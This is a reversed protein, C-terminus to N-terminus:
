NVLPKSQLFEESLPIYGSASILKQGMPSTLYQILKQQPADMQSNKRIVAYYNTMLPYIGNAINKKTPYIGDIALMKIRYDFLITSAYYYTDYGIAYPSGDYFSLTTILNKESDFQLNKPPQMTKEKSLIYRHFMSQLLSNENKQYAVITTEEGTFNEWSTINGSYINQIDELYLNELSNEYSVLFVIAEKSIPICELETHYEEQLALLEESPEPSFVIDCEGSLLSRFNEEITGYHLLSQESSIDNSFASLINEGIPATVASVAIQPFASDYFDMTSFQKWDIQQKNETAVVKQNSIDTNDSTKTNENQQQITQQDLFYMYVTATIMSCFLIFFLVFILIKTPKKM